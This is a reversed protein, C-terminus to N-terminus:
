PALAPLGGLQYLWTDGLFVGNGRWGGFLVLQRSVPDLALASHHRSVAPQEGPLRVFREGPGLQLEELHPVDREDANDGGALLLQGCAEDAARGQHAWAAPAGVAPLDQWTQTALDFRWTGPTVGAATHGGVLYLTENQYALSANTTAPPLREPLPQSAAVHLQRWTNTALDLEWLDGLVADPRAPSWPFGGYVWLRDAGDTAAAADFRAPPGSPLREWEMQQLDLSWVEDSPRGDNGFLILVRGRPADEVAASAWRPTPQDGFLIVEQWTETRPSFTWLDGLVGYDARVGGFVIALGRVRDFAAAHLARAPPGPTEVQRWGLADGNPECRLAAAPFPLAPLSERTAHLPVPPLVAAALALAAGALCRKISCPGM